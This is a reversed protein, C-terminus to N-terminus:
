LHFIITLPRRDFSDWTELPEILDLRAFRRVLALLTQDLVLRSLLAAPCYHRGHGFTLHPNPVRALDLRDPDAYRHPDRNAAAKFIRFTRGDSAVRTSHRGPPEGFRLLEDTATTLRTAPDAALWAYADPHRALAVLASGLANSLNTMGASVTFLLNAAVERSSLGSRALWAAMTRPQDSSTDDAIATLRALAEPLVNPGLDGLDIARALNVWYPHSEPGGLGVVLDLVASALRYAVLVGVDVPLGVPLDAVVTRTVATLLPLRATVAASLAADVAQRHRLHDAGDMNLVHADFDHGSRLRSRSLGLDALTARAEAYRRIEVDDM